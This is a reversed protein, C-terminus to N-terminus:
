VHVAIVNPSISTGFRLAKETLNNWGKVPVVVVPPEADVGLSPPAKEAMQRSVFRYHRHIGRFLLLVLPTLLITVWAGERFKAVVIVLLALLTTVAGAANITLSAWHKRAGARKWHVVMGIQSLTFAGFAGVAFLPILRDTIGGFAILLVAALLALVTIGASY